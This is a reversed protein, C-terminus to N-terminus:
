YFRLILFYKIRYYLFQIFTGKGYIKWIYYGKMNNKFTKKLQLIKPIIKNDSVGCTNTSHLRYLMTSETITSIVGKSNAVAMTCISDHMRINIFPHVIIKVSYNFIMTCGGVITYISIINPNKM